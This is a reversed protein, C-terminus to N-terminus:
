RAREGLITSGGTGLRNKQITYDFTQNLRKHGMSFLTDEIGGFPQKGFM